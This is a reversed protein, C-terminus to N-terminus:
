KSTLMDIAAPLNKDQYFPDVMSLSLRTYGEADFDRLVNMFAQGPRETGAVREIFRYKAQPGYAWELISMADDEFPNNILIRIGV